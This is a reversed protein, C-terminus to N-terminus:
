KSVSLEEEMESLLSVVMEGGSLMDFSLHRTESVITKLYQTAPRVSLDRRSLSIATDAESFSSM